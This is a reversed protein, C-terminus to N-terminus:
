FESAVGLEAFSRYLGYPQQLLQSQKNLSASNNTVNVFHSIQQSGDYHMAEQLPQAAFIGGPQPIYTAVLVWCGGCGALCTM